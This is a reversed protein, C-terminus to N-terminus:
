NSYTDNQNDYLVGSSYKPNDYHHFNMDLVSLIDQYGTPPYNSNNFGLTEFVDIEGGPGWLWFAPNM